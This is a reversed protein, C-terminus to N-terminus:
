GTPALDTQDVQSRLTNLAQGLLRSVHMQSIGMREAIEYQTMDDFFRLSLLTRTRAPLAALLPRVTEIQLVKDVGPDVDGLTNGLFQDGDEPGIPVDTSQVSYNSGATMADIVLERDVGLHSALESANPARGLQHTLANRARGLQQYTDKVRRPVRLAWGCDRFHRRVEGMVTPVAFALFPAGNAVDFRNVANVLGLRAVQTLDDLPQGRDRYRRAIHDALPLTREIIADRQHRFAVSERDLTKLHRFLDTVDDYESNSYTM